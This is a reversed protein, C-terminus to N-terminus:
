IMGEDAFSFYGKNSIILHDLVTVELLKGANVIKKTIDIDPNSPNLNGSPHNHCLIISSANNDIAKKFIVKPDVVTGAVGGLSITEIKILQNNRNLILIKFVETTLDELTSYICNYADKSSSLKPRDSVKTLQRRRGLELAAIINIAKAEGIGKFSQLEALGYRALLGLDDGCSNLISQALSLASVGKSGSGIIIALLESASLTSRGKLILKERPKDEEAWCKISITKNM